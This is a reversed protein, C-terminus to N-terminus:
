SGVRMQDVSHESFVSSEFMIYSEHLRDFSYEEFDHWREYKHFLLWYDFLIRASEESRTRFAIDVPTLGFRNKVLINAGNSALERVIPTRNWRVAQHLPTNGNEDKANPDASASLLLKFPALSDLNAFHLPTEGVFNSTLIAGGALLLQVTAADGNIAPLHM